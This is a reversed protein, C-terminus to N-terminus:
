MVSRTEASSIPWVPLRFAALAILLVAIGAAIVKKKM